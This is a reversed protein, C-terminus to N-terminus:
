DRFREAIEIFQPQIELFADVVDPDFHRGRGERIVSAVEDHAIASKYVRKCSMADYVDALAMLRAPIPIQEGKLHSPYGSGDWKEHHSMAIQCAVDLFTSSIDLGAVASAFANGGLAAHTKMIEFEEETLKGPKHLIADPIGVKGVDHLPAVKYLLIINEDSLFHAFRPHGRLKEALARIYNQTRRIHNGTENDRTEALSSLAVITTDKILENEQTRQTLEATRRAVMQELKVGNESLVKNAKELEHRAEEVEAKRMMLEQLLDTNEFRQTISLMFTKNLGRGASLVVVLFIVLMLTLIIHITDAIVVVRLILPLMIGLVYSYLSPPHVPNMTVAGAVLGLMICIMLGQYGIDAPFLLMAAGGWLVGTALAFFTFHFHLDHCEQVSELRNRHAYWNALEVLHVVYFSFLWFLLLEHSAHDWFMWVFLPQLAMQSFILPPYMEMRTRLQEARVRLNDLDIPFSFDAPTPSSHKHPIHATDM